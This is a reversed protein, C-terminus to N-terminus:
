KALNARLYQQYLRKDKHADPIFEGYFTDHVFCGIWVVGGVVLAAEFRDKPMPLRIEQQNLPIAIAISGRWGSIAIPAGASVLWVGLGLLMSHTLKAPTHQEEKTYQGTIRETIYMGAVVLGGLSLTALQPGKQAWRHDPRYGRQYLGALGCFLLPLGTPSDGLIMNLYRGRLFRGEPKWMLSNVLGLYWNTTLTHVEGPPRNFFRKVLEGPSHIVM